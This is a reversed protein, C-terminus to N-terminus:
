STLKNFKYAFISSVLMASGWQTLITYYLIDHIFGPKSIDDKFENFAKEPHGKYEDKLYHDIYSM